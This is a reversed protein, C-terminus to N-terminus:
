HYHGILRGSADLVELGQDTQKGLKHGQMAQDSKFRTMVDGDNGAPQQGQQNQDFHDDAGYKRRNALSVAKAMTPDFDPNERGTATYNSTKRKIEEPTLGSIAKRAAEIEFNSRVQPLTLRERQSPQATRGSIEKIHGAIESRKAPDTEDVLQQQLSNLRQMQENRLQQGETRETTLADALPNAVRPRSVIGQQEHGRTLAAASPTEGLIGIGNGGNAAIMGDIMEGRAKNERAMIENVGKGDYSGAIGGSRMMPNGMAAQASDATIVGQNNRGVPPAAIGANEPTDAAGHTVVQQRVEPKGVAQTGQPAMTADLQSQVEKASPMAAIGQGAAGRYAFPDLEPPKPQEQAPAPAAISAAVLPQNAPRPLDAITAPAPGQNPNTAMNAAIGSPVQMAPTPAAISNAARTLPGPKKPQALIGQDEPYM